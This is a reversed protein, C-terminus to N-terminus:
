DEGQAASKNTVSEMQVTIESEGEKGYTVLLEDSDQMIYHAYSSSIKEWDSGKGKVFVKLTIDGENCYKIGSDSEFCADELKMGVTEFLHGLTIGLAHIHAVDGDGNEFHVAESRLQYRAISFDIPSGLVYVKIDAHKHVSGLGGSNNKSNACGAIFLLLMAISAILLRKKM